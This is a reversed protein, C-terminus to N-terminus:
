GSLKGVLGIYLRLYEAPDTNRLAQLKLFTKYAETGRKGMMGLWRLLSTERSSLAEVLEPTPVVESPSLLDELRELDQGSGEGMEISGYLAQIEDRSAQSFVPYLFVFRLWLARRRAEYLVRVSSPVELGSLWLKWSRASEKWLDGYKTCGNPEPFGTLCKFFNRAGEAISGGARQFMYATASAWLDVSIWLPPESLDPEGGCERAWLASLGHPIETIGMVYTGSLRALGSINLWLTEPSEDASPLEKMNTVIFTWAIAEALRLKALGGHASGAVLMGLLSEAELDRLVREFSPIRPTGFLPLPLRTFGYLGTDSGFADPDPYVVLSVRSYLDFVGRGPPPSGWLDLLRELIGEALGAIYGPDLGEYALVLFHASTAAEWTAGWASFALLLIVAPLLGKM